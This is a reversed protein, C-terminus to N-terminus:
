IREYHWDIGNFGKITDSSISYWPSYKKNLEKCRKDSIEISTSGSYQAMMETELIIEKRM